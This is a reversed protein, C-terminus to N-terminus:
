PSPEHRNAGPMRLADIRARETQRNDALLEEDQEQTPWFYVAPHM